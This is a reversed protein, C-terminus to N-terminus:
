TPGQVVLQQQVIKIYAVGDHNEIIKIAATATLTLMCAHHVDLIADQLRQDAEIPTIKLGMEKCKEISLHRNHSLTLAHDGLENWIKDIKSNAEKEEHFMNFALWDRVLQDSWKIAKECEGVFTPRYRAIIPQWVAVRAPDHKIENIARKFEEIVGHAPIGGLHPDVPGLSSQKGMLIEKCACAIMTGASMALQPIVARIDRGFMSRLYDVLSETAATDGGPTHLLLDLGKSRDLNNITTMFGNKDEDNVEVGDIGKKQLWGSYYAIINRGTVEHLKHLKERRVVDYGSGRAKVEVLTDNWTSM